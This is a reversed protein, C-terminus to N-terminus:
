VTRSATSMAHHGQHAGHLLEDNSQEDQQVAASDAVPPRGTSPAERGGALNQSIIVFTSLFIAELSVIM